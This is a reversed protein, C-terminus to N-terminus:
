KNFLKKGNVIYLGKQMKSVRQGALNYIANNEKETTEVAQIGDVFDNLAFGKVPHSESGPKVAMYAKNPGLDFAAGDEAGWWFGIEAGNHMTLRYYTCNLDAEAMEEATIGNPGSPRLMNNTTKAAGGREMLTVPKRGPEESSVMVGTNAPVINGEEYPTVTLIGNAITVEAVTLGNPVFFPKKNSYTGYYMKTDDDYCARNIEIYATQVQKDVLINGLAVNGLTKATYTWKIYRVDDSFDTFVKTETTSSLETYSELDEFTEGDASTQVTFTGAWPDQGNGNGKIDFYLAKPAENMKILLYDGADDYKIGPGDSTYSGLGNGTLGTEDAVMAGTSNYEYPLNVYDRIFAAQTIIIHNSSYNGVYVQLYAIRPTTEENAAIMYEINMDDDFDASIWDYETVSGEEDCLVVRANSNDSINLYSVELTGTNEASSVELASPITITPENNKEYYVTVGTLGCAGGIKANIERTGDTPTIIVITKDKDGYSITANTWTSGGLATAYDLTTAKFTVSTIKYGSAPTITLVNGTYMRTSNRTPPIYNNVKTSSSGKANKMTAFDSSWSILDDTLNNDYSAKSLDWTYDGVNTNQYKISYSATAPIYDDNGSFSATIVAEGYGGIIVNGTSAEVTAVETNNSEYTITLGTVSENASNKISLTPAVFNAPDSFELTGGTFEMTLEERTSTEATPQEFIQLEKTTNYMTPFGVITYTANLDSVSITGADGRGFLQVNDNGLQVYFKGDTKTITAGTVKYYKSLENNFTKNWASAAVETPEPATGVNSSCGDLNTIQPNGNRIEFAVSPTGNLVNGAVFGHNSKYLVVAGSTDEIYAYNGNVYTVVADTFTVNYTGAETKATLAAINALAPPTSGGSSVGALNVEDIIAQTNSTNWVIKLYLTAVQAAEPLTYSREVFTTAGTGSGTIETFTGNASTAYSASTTYTGKTSAAKWQYTLVLTNYDAVNLPGIIVSADSGQTTQILGSATSGTTNKGQKANTVTYGTIDSYVTKVGSKVSYSDDWTRASNPNSGFTEHFLTEGWAGSIGACLVAIMALARLRFSNLLKKKM